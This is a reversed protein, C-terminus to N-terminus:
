GRLLGIKNRDTPVTRVLKVRHEAYYAKFNAGDYEDGNDLRLCKVRENTENEIEAKCKKFVELM